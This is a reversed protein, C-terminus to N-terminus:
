WNPPSAFPFAYCILVSLCCVACFVFQLFSLCLNLIKLVNGARGDGIQMFIQNYLTQVYNVLGTFNSNQISFLRHSCQYKPCQGSLPAGKNQNQKSTITYLFKSFRKMYLALIEHCVNYFDLSKTLLVKVSFM